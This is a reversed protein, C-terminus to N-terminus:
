LHSKFSLRINVTAELCWSAVYLSSYIQLNPKYLIGTETGSFIEYNQIASLQDVRMIMLMDITSFDRLISKIWSLSVYSDTMATKSTATWPLPSQVNVCLMETIDASSQIDHTSIIYVFYSRVKLIVSPRKCFYQCSTESLGIMKSFSCGLTWNLLNTNLLGSSM